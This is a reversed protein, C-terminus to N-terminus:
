IQPEQCQLFFQWRTSLGGNPMARFRPLGSQLPERDFVEFWLSRQNGIDAQQCVGSVDCSVTRKAQGASPGKCAARAPTPDPLGYDVFVRVYSDDVVDTDLMTLAISGEGRSLAVPGPEILEKAAEDRISLFIPPSNFGADPQDLALPPPVVCATTMVVFTCGLMKQAVNILTQYQETRDLNNNSHMTVQVSMKTLHNRLVACNNELHADGQVKRRAGM